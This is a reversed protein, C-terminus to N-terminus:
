HEEVEIEWNGIATVYLYYKGAPKQLPTEGTYQGKANIIEPTGGTKILDTGAKVVYVSFTGYDAGRRCDYTYRIRGEKGSLQFIKSKTDSRGKLSIIEKWSKDSSNVAKTKATQAMPPNDCLFVFIAFILFLLNKKM